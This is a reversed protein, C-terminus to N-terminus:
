SDVVHIFIGHPAAAAGPPVPRTANLRAHGTKNMLFVATLIGAKVNSDSKVWCGTTTLIGTLRGTKVVAVLLTNLPIKVATNPTNGFGVTLSRIRVQTRHTSPGVQRLETSTCPATGIRSLVASPVDSRKTASSSGCAVAGLLVMGALLM